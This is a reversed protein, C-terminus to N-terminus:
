VHYGEKELYVRLKERTAQLRKSVANATLGYARALDSVPYSYWYRGVFLRREQPNLKELFANLLEPLREAEEDPLPVCAELEELSVEMDRCRKGALCHRLRNISLNRTIRCLYAQLSRPHAPPISNWAHLWADNVCEEADSRSNLINMALRYCLAGFRQQSERIAAEDRALFLETIHQDSQNM